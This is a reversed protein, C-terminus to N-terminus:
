IKNQEAKYKTNAFLNSQVSDSHVNFDVAQQKCTLQICGNHRPKSAADTQSTSVSPHTYELVEIKM